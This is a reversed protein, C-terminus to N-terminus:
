YIGLYTAKFFRLKDKIETYVERVKDEEEHFQASAVDTRSKITKPLLEQDMADCALKLQEEHLHSDELIKNVREKLDDKTPADLGKYSLYAQYIPVSGRPMNPKSLFIDDDTLEDAFKVTTRDISIVGTFVANLFDNLDPDEVYDIEKVWEEIQRLHGLQGKVIECYKPASVFHDIRVLRKNMEPIETSGDNEIKFSENDYSMQLHQLKAHGDRMIDRSQNVSGQYIEKAEDLYVQSLQKIEYTRDGDPSVIIGRREAEEYLAFAETARDKLKSNNADNMISYPSPSPLENWNKGHLWNDNEDRYKQGEYL